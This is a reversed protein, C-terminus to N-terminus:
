NSMQSEAHTKKDVYSVWFKFTGGNTHIYKNGLIQQSNHFDVTFETKNGTSNALLILVNLHDHSGKDWYVKYDAANESPPWVLSISDSSQKTSSLGTIPTLLPPQTTNLAPKPALPRAEQLKFEFPESLMSMMKQQNIAQITITYTFGLMPAPTKLNFFARQDSTQIQLGPESSNQKQIFIRYYAIKSGGDINPQEWSIQAESDSTRKFQIGYPQSIGQIKNEVAGPSKCVKSVEPKKSQVSNPDLVKISDKM